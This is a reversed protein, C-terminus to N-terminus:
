LVTPKWDKVAQILIEEPSAYQLENPMRLGLYKLARGLNKTARRDDLAPANTQKSLKQGLENKVVPLHYYDPTPLSLLKQLHIQRPTNDLLDEGRVVETINQWADDVVVAIQYAFFGDARKIIFDGIESELRQGYEGIRQDIFGIRSDHTHVRIAYQLEKRTAGNRCIGPYILGYKGQQATVQLIKRSCYCRYALNSGTLQEIATEYAEHRQSQYIIEGDWHLGHAELSRLIKDAAGPEERPPDLDEMRVLWKGNKSKAPLYSGAAAVLSGLHLPGTPSPAFRGIYNGTM